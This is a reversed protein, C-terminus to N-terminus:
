KEAEEEITRVVQPPCTLASFSVLPLEHHPQQQLWTKIEEVYKVVQEGHTVSGKAGSRGGEVGGGGRGGGGGGAGQAGGGATAILEERSPWNHVPVAPHVHDDDDTMKGGRGLAVTKTVLERAAADSREEAAVVGAAAADAAAATMDMTLAAAATAAPPAPSSPISSTFDAPSFLDAASAFLNSSAMDPRQRALAFFLAPFRAKYSLFLALCESSYQWAGSARSKRAYGSTYMGRREFKVNLGIDEQGGRVQVPLMFSSLLRSTMFVSLGVASAVHREEYWKTAGESGAVARKGFEEAAETDGMEVLQVLVEEGGGGRRSESKSSSSVVHGVAGLQRADGLVVVLQGPPFRSSITPPAHPQFRHDKAAECTMTQLAVQLPQPDYHCDLAGRSTQVMSNLVKVEAISTVACIDVGARQLWESHQAEAKRKHESSEGASLMRVNVGGHGDSGVRKEGDCVAVVVGPRWYPWSV